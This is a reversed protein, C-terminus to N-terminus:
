ELWTKVDGATEDLVPSAREISLATHAQARLTTSQPAISLDRAAALIWVFLFGPELLESCFKAKGPFFLCGKLAIIPKSRVGLSLMDQEGDHEAVRAHLEHELRDGPVPSCRCM